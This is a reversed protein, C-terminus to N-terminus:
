ATIMDMSWGFMTNSMADIFVIIYFQQLSSPLSRTNSKSKELLSFPVSFSLKANLILFVTITLFFLVFFGSFIIKM